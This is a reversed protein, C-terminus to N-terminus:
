EVDMRPYSFEMRETYLEVKVMKIADTSADSKDPTVSVIEADFFELTFLERQEQDYTRIYGAKKDSHSKLEGDVIRKKAQDFFPQADSEPIYFAINPFDIPSACKIPARFGGAHYDIVTQKITFADIKACQRCASDFGDVSLTFRHSTWEKQSQMGKSQQIKEGKGPVFTMGEISMTINMYLPTSDAAVLAPFTLEKIMAGTFERRAREKYYFDAAVIAGNKQVAEGKFFHAVWDYFPKSMAMGVQAKIDEFNPKGLQRWKELGQGYQYTMVQAKLGGGEISRFLGLDKKGDLELGFHAAAYAKKSYDPKQGPPM